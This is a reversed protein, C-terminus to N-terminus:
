HKVDAQERGQARLYLQYDLVTKIPPEGPLAVGRHLEDDEHDKDWPNHHPRRKFHDAMRRVPNFLPALFHNLPPIPLLALLLLGLGFHLIFTGGPWPLGSMDLGWLGMLLSKAAWLDARDLLKLYLGSICAALLLLLVLYDALRSAYAAQRLIIRRLLRLVLLAPLAYGVWATLPLFWLMFEPVPDLVLRLHRLALLLLCLHMAAWIAWHWPRKGLFGPLVFQDALYYFLHEFAGRPGPTLPIRWPLPRRWLAIIRLVLGLGLCLLALAPLIRFLVLQGLGL